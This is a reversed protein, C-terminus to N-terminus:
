SINDAHELETKKKIDMATKYCMRYLPSQKINQEHKDFVHYMTTRDMGWIEALIRPHCFPKFANIFAYRLFVYELKRTKIEQYMDKPLALSVYEDKLSNLVELRYGLHKPKREKSLKRTM